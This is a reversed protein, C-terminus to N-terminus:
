VKKIVGENQLYIGIYRAGDMHHNDFDEPEELVIGYRDVKRSYNEQEHKINKSDSTYFVKLNNLIGIGDIISGPTKNVGIAYEWGSARLARIKLPRNNDCVIEADVPVGMKGYLWSVLGDDATGIQALETQNLRGRMDNESAYNLEHLYLAGDYYKAKGIAWPDVVGWDNYYYEKAQIDAFEQYSIEGWKFIRNPREAREGLGYVSWNYESASNKHHNLQCRQLEKLRKLDFNMLNLICDYKAAEHAPLLKELVIRCMSVPQYSLIKDRQADPCFPNDKFTSNIVLTEPDKEMDEIWHALRPNWDVILFEATRQEIQDKIECSIKYPENLWSIDQTLGHVSVSDDAGHAEFTSATGYKLYTKTANFRNGVNWRGTTSLRKEIDHFVTDVCDVKSDRWATIRKRKNTRAYLDLADIISYTKSSRSSGKLVIRKYKNKTKGPRDPDPIKANLADWIKNFVITVELKTENQIAAIAM